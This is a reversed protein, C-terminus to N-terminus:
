VDIRSEKEDDEHKLDNTISRALESLFAEMMMLEKDSYKESKPDVLKRCENLTLM